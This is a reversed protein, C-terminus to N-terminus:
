LVFETCPATLGKMLMLVGVLRSDSAASVSVGGDRGGVPVM